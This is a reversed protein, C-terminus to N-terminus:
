SVQVTVWGYAINAALTAIIKLWLLMWALPPYKVGVGASHLVVMSATYVLGDITLPIIIATASSEGDDTFVAYAHRCSVIAAIVAVGCVVIKTTGCILLETRPEEKSEGEESLIWGAESQRRCFFPGPVSAQSLCDPLVEDQKRLSGHAVM